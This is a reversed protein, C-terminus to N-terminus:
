HKRSFISISFSCFHAILHLYIKWIGYNEVSKELSCGLVVVLFFFFFFLMLTLIKFWGLVSFKNFTNFITFFFLHAFNNLCPFCFNRSLTVKAIKERRPGTNAIYIYYLLLHPYPKTALMLRRWSTWILYIAFYMYLRRSFYYNTALLLLLKFASSLESWRIPEGQHWFHYVGFM